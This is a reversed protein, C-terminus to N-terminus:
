FGRTQPFICPLSRPQEGEQHPCGAPLCPVGRGKGLSTVLEYIDRTVHWYLEKQWHRLRRWEEPCFTVAVDLSGTRGTKRLGPVGLGVRPACVGGGPLGKRGPRARATPARYHNHAANRRRFVPPPM